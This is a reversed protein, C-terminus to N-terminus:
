KNQNKIKIDIAINWVGPSYSRVIREDLFKTKKNYKQATEKIEKKPKQYLNKEKEIDYYHIIGKDGILKLATKLFDGSKFPLNMITRDAYGKYKQAIKRIDAHIPKTKKEVKNTKINEKLLKIATKNKDVAIIKQAKTKKAILIAFPGVGTFMDIVKENEKVQNKIREREKSLRPSFFAKSLDIKYKCGHEKHITTTKNKGAIKEYKRTRYEGQVSTTPTLVTKLHKHVKMLEEGIIEKQNKLESPIEIIAIDGVIDFSSPAKELQKPTLKNKLATKLNQYNNKHKKHNKVTFKPNKLNKQIKRKEKQNPEKKIPIFLHNKEKLIEHKKDLLNLEILTKRAKEGEKKQVQISNTM